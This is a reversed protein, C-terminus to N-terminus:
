APERGDAPLLVAGGDPSYKGTDDNAGFDVAAPRRPRSCRAYPVRTGCDSEECAEDKRRDALRSANARRSAGTEASRRAGLGSGIRAAALVADLSGTPASACRTTRPCAPRPRPPRSRPVPPTTTSRRAHQARDGGRAGAARAARDARAARRAGALPPMPHGPYDEIETQGAQHCLVFLTRRPATSSASRSARTPRTSSRARARSSSCSAAASTRGRRRAARGRRRRLRRRGRRGRDGLRRDRDRDPRDPRVRSALGRARAARDLELAVTM